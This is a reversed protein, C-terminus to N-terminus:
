GKTLMARLRADIEAASLIQDALRQADPQYRGARLAGELEHLRASRTATAHQRAATVLEAAPRVNEVTVKDLARHGQPEAAAPPVREIGQLEKTERVKM